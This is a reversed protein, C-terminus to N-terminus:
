PRLSGRLPKKDAKLSHNSGQRPKLHNAVAFCLGMALLFLGLYQSARAM